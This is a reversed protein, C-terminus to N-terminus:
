TLSVMTYLKTWTINGPGLINRLLQKNLITLNIIATQSRYTWYNQWM